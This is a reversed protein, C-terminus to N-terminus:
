IMKKTVDLFDFAALDKHGSKLAIDGPINDLPLGFAYSYCNNFDSDDLVYDEPPSSEASCGALFVFGFIALSFIILSIPEKGSPDIYAVPNNECYAYWNLGDKIPDVSTFRGVMPDYYRARLYIFGTETDYYEGCYRFPNSDGLDRAYENGYADYDYTKDVDGDFGLLQIVDGRVNYLYLQTGNSVLEIGRLYAATTDVWVDGGVLLFSTTTNGVSKSVRLGQANYAYTANDASTMRNWVDYGYNTM